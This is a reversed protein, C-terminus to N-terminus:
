SLIVFLAYKLETKSRLKVKWLASYVFVMDCVASAGVDDLTDVVVVAVVVEIVLGM